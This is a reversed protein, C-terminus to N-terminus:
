NSKICIAVWSTAFNDFNPILPIGQGSLASDLASIWAEWATIYTIGGLEPIPTDKVGTGKLRPEATTEGQHTALRRCPTHRFHWRTLGAAFIFAADFHVVFLRPATSFRYFIAGQILPPSASDFFIGDDEGAAVQATLSQLWYATFGPDTLNM